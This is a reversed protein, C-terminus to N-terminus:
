PKLVLLPLQASGDDCSGDLTVGTGDCSGSQAVFRGNTDITGANAPTVTLHANSTINAQSGDLYTATVAVSLEDGERIRLEKDNDTNGDTAGLSLVSLNNSIDITVPPSQVPMGANTTGSAVANVSGSRYTALQPLAPDPFDALASAPSVSWSFPYNLVLGNDFLAEA